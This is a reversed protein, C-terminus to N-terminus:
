KSGPPGSSASRGRATDSRLRQRGFLDARCDTGGATWGLSVSQPADSACWTLGTGEDINAMRYNSMTLPHPVDLALAATAGVTPVSQLKVVRVDKDKTTMRNKLRDLLLAQKESLDTTATDVASLLTMKEDASAGFGSRAMTGCALLVVAACRVCTIFSEFCM